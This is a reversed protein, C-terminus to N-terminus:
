VTLEAEAPLGEVWCGQEEDKIRRGMKWGAKEKGDKFMTRDM